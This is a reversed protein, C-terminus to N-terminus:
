AAPGIRTCSWPRVGPTGRPSIGPRAGLSTADGRREVRTEHGTAVLRTTMARGPALGLARRAEPLTCIVQDHEGALRRAKHTALWREVQRWAWPPWLRPRCAHYWVREVHGEPCAQIHGGWVAPRCVLLAWAATRGDAPLPHSRAFAASGRPLLQQSTLGAMRWRQEQGSADGGGGRRTRGVGMLSGFLTTFSQLARCGIVRWWCGGM